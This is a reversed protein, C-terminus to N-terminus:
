GLNCNEKVNIWYGIKPLLLDTKNWSPPQSTSNWYLPGIEVSCNGIISPFYTSNFPAGILNWGRKLPPIDVITANGAGSIEIECTHKAESFIWYGKGAELQTWSKEEWKETARNLYYLKKDKLNCPDLTVNTIVKFASSILNWGPYIKFTTLPGVEPIVTLTKSNQEGDDSFDGDGNKDICAYYTYAGVSSPASFSNGTCGGNGSPITCSSVQAGACNDRKFYVVKNGCNILNSASPTVIGGSIVTSPNLTLSVSGSCGLTVILTYTTTRTLGGGTAIITIEYTGLPTTPSTSINLVSNCTPSCSSPNFTCAVGLPLQAIFQEEAGVSTTPEPSTYKRILIWDLQANIPSNGWNRFGAGFNGTLTTHTASLTNGLDDKFILSSGTRGLEVIYWVNNAPVVNIQSTLITTGDLTATGSASYIIYSGATRWSDGSYVIQGFYSPNDASTSYTLITSLRRVTQTVGTPVKMRARAIASSSYLSTSIIGADRPFSAIGGSVTGVGYGGDIWLWKATDKTDFDDFLIFTANGNSASTASFNGYYLYITKTASAPISTVNVWLKTNSSFQCPPSLSIRIDTIPNGQLDTFRAVFGWNGTKEGVRILLKNWGENLTVQFIDQDNAWCRCAAHNNWVMNGNIWVRIGDDSGVRLKVTRSTPSYIYAFVYANVYDPPGSGSGGFICNLDIGFNNNCTGGCASTFRHHEFWTKGSDVKGPYFNDNVNVLETQDNSGCGVATGSFTGLILWDGIFGNSDPSYKPPEELWYSLLTTGDSDTFRIDGCDSRM